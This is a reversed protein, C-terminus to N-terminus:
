INFNFDKLDCDKNHILYVFKIFFSQFNSFIMIKFTQLQIWTNKM